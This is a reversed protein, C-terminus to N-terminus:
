KQRKRSSKKLMWLKNTKSASIKAAEISVGDWLQLPWIEPSLSYDRAGQGSESIISTSSLALDLNLEFGDVQVHRPPAPHKCSYKDFRHNSETM